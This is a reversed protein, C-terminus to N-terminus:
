KRFINENRSIKKESLIRAQITAKMQRKQEESLMFTLHNRNLNENMKHIQLSILKSQKKFRHCFKCSALHLKLKIKETSSLKIFENKTILFAATDCSLMVKNMGKIWIQRIKSM